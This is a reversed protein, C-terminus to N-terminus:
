NGTYAATLVIDGTYDGGTQWVAPVVTGGIWVIITGDIAGLDKPASPGNPNLEGAPATQGGGTGDDYAADSNGFNIPLSAISDVTYMYTPLVFDITVESSPTGTITWQGAFTGDTQKDVSKNVGPMVSGFNLDRNGDVRLGSIVTAIAQITGSEQAKTEPATALVFFGAFLVLWLKGKIKM